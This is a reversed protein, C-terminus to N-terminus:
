FRVVHFYSLGSVVLSALLLVASSLFWRLTKAYEVEDDDRIQLARWLAIMQMLISVAALGAAIEASVTWTGPLEFGWYRLFVLSFGLLVTIATIIGQRYGLPLPVRAPERRAEQSDDKLDDEAM